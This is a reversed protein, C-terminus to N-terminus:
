AIQCLNKKLKEAKTRINKNTQRYVPPSSKHKRRKDILDMIGQAIWEQKRKNKHSDLTKKM